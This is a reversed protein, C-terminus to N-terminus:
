TREWAQAIQRRNASLIGMRCGGSEATQFIDIRAPPPPAMPICADRIRALIGEAITVMRGKTSL